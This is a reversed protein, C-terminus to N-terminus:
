KLPSIERLRKVIPKLQKVVYDIDKKKTYKGMSFRISSHARLHSMGMAMLVHSPILRTSSCASGTSVAIGAEDLSMLLAEGEVGKITVNLNNPLRKNPHGNLQVRKISNKIEQLFYNRLNILREKEEKMESDAIDIAKALGIIGPTNHTSGRREREQEGAHILPELEVGERVFLVGVGKPGYLKHASLTLMDVGLDDINIPIHGLTQVADTHFYIPTDNNNVQRNKKVNAIIKGIEKIPEITGVENNAHMISVITTNKNIEKKIDDPNILGNKDPKIYSVKAGRKKLFNCTNIIASHEIASTIIHPTFDKNQTLKFFVGKLALNDSESGGSTFIVEKSKAGIFNAVRKRAKDLGIKADQGFQHLTAPNAFNDSFYPEMAKKVKKHVPTTAAYDLYVKKM